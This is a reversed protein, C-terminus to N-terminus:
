LEGLQIEALDGWFHRSERLDSRAGVFAHDVREYGGAGLSAAARMQNDLFVRAEPTAWDIELRYSHWEGDLLQAEVDLLTYSWDDEEGRFGTRLTGDSTLYINLSSRAGISGHSWLYQFENTAEPRARFEFAM